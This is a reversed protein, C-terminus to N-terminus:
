IESDNDIIDISAAGFFQGTGSILFAELFIEETKEVLADDIIPVTFSATDLPRSFAEFILTETTSIYDPSAVTM